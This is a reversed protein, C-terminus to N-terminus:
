FLCKSTQVWGWLVKQVFGTVIFKKDSTDDLNDGLIQFCTWLLDSLWWDSIKRITFIIFSIQGQRRYRRSGQDLDSGQYCHAGRCNKLDHNIDPFNNLLTPSRIYCTPWITQSFFDDTVKLGQTSNILINVVLDPIQLQRYFAPAPICDTLGCWECCAQFLWIKTTSIIKAGTNLTRTMISANIPDGDGGM